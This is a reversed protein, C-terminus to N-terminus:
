RKDYTIRFEIVKKQVDKHVTNLDPLDIALDGHTVKWRNNNYEGGNIM